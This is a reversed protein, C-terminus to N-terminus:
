QAVFSESVSNVMVTYTQGPEFDSGLQINHEVFRYEQTCMVDGNAPRWNTINVRITEGDRTMTYGASEACGNPLGSVVSLAYQVPFSEMILVDVSEIPAEVQAMDRGVDRPDQWVSEGDSRAQFFDGVRGDGQGTIGGDPHGIINGEDDYITSFQDCCRQPLFYVTQGDYTYRTISAPPDAVPANELDRILSALWTPLTPGSVVLQTTQSHGVVDQVLVTHIGLPVNSFVYAIDPLNSYVEDAQRGALTAWVDVGSFVTLTVTATSGDVHVDGLAWEKEAVPTGTSGPDATPTAAPNNCALALVLTLTLALAAHPATQKKM